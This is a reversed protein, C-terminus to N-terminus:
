NSLNTRHLKQTEKGLKDDIIVGLFRTESERKVPKNNLVLILEQDSDGVLLESDDNIIHSPFYLYCCKSVNIHLKNSIM